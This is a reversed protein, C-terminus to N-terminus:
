KNSQSPVETGDAAIGYVLADPHYIPQVSELARMTGSDSSAYSSGENYMYDNGTSNNIYLTEKEAFTFSNDNTHVCLVRGTGPEVLKWAVVGSWGSMTYRGDAAYTHTGAVVPQPNRFMDINTDNIYLPNLKPKPYKKCYAMAEDVQAQTTTIYRTGYHTVKMKNNVGPLGWAICFDSLDEGAADSARKVFDLMYQAQGADTSPQEECTRCAEYFDPYFDTKGLVLHYYMYLQWFPMLRTTPDVEGEINGVSPTNVAECHTMPRVTGDRDVVMRMAIDRMGKNFHDNYRMTTHGEGYFITQIIACMLNNTVETLGIWKFASTQNSHGLEHALGWIGGVVNNNLTTATKNWLTGPNTTGYAMSKVNYATTYASSFGYTGGYHTRFLGKNRHGRQLGQAKYKDHGQIREQIKFISDYIELLDNVRSVNKPSNLLTSSLIHTKPYNLICKESILDFHPQASQSALKFITYFDDLDHKTYDYYGNVSATPFNITVPKVNAYNDTHYKVYILGKHKITLKNRGPSIAYDAQTSACYGENNVWDIVSITLTQGYTDGVLIIHEKGAEPIYMGTVNDLLSMTNTRFIKADRDPHPVPIAECVRFESYVGMYLQEAISRYFEDAINEIEDLTMGDKLKSCSLDTFVSMPDFNEPNYAYFEIEAASGQVFQPYSSNPNCSLIKIRIKTVNVLAPEFFIKTTGISSQGCDADKVLTETGQRDTAYIEIKGFQGFTVRNTNTIAMYDIKNDKDAAFTMEVTAYDMGTNIATAWYTNYDGDILRDAGNTTSRASSVTASEVPVKVDDAMNDNQLNGFEKAGIQTVTVEVIEKGSRVTIKASRDIKYDNQAVAFRVIDDERTEQVRTIWSKGAEISVSYEAFSTIQISVTDNLFAAKLETPSVYLPVFGNQSVSVSVETWRSSLKVEATRQETSENAAMNFVVQVTGDEATRQEKFTLWNADTRATFTGNAVVPIIFEQAPFDTEFETTELAIHRAEDSVLGMQKVIFQQSLEDLTVTVTCERSLTDENQKVSVKIEKEGLSNKSTNIKCWDDVSCEAMWSNDSASVEVIRNDAANNSFYVTDAAIELYASVPEPGTNDVPDKECSSLLLAAASFLMATLLYIKKM